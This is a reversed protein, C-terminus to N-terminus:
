GQDSQYMRMEKPQYWESLTAPIRAKYGLVQKLWDSLHTMATYGLARPYDYQQKMFPKCYMPTVSRRPKDTTNIGARHWLNSNFVLVSGAKAVAQEAVQQFEQETPLHPHTAHSGSMLYTAGNEQTFDDLMVLTNLLLPMDGSYSRIDRHINNAYSLIGKQNINGGFSNLIYKGKFYSEFYPNFAESLILYDIYSQGLEILHHTTGENNEPIGNGEQIARCTHYARATDELLRQILEAPVAQHFIFWGKEQMHQNFENLTIM